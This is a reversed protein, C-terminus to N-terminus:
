SKGHHECVDIYRSVHHSPGISLDRRASDKGDGSQFIKIRTSGLETQIRDNYAKRDPAEAHAYGQIDQLRVDSGEYFWRM